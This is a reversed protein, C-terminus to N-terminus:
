SWFPEQLIKVMAINKRKDEEKKRNLKNLRYPTITAPFEMAINKRKDEEKKRNLKNLKSGAKLAM